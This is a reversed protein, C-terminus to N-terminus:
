QKDGLLLVKLVKIRRVFYFSAAISVAVTLIFTFPVMLALPLISLVTRLAVKFPEGLIYLDMSYDGMRNLWRSTHSEEKGVTILAIEWVMTIGSLTTIIYGVNMGLGTRLVNGIIFLVISFFLITASYDKLIKYIRDYNLRLCIGGVYFFLFTEVKGLVAFVNILVSSCGKYEPVFAHGTAAFVFLLFALTTIVYINRKTSIICTILALIFLIYLFWLAGDPNHGVFILPFESLSFENRAFKSLFIRFPLYLVGMIFYPIMLRKFKNLIFDMKMMLADCHIAKISVFGSVAFFAPMHFSYIVQGIGNFILYDWTTTANLQTLVHGLIVLLALIGRM